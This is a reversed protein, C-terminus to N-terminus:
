MHLILKPNRVARNPVAIFSGACTETLGYGQVVPACMAVKLFEEVHSPLPAGGSVILRVRGGLRHKVKGFVIKDGIPSAQVGVLLLLKALSCKVMNERLINRAWIVSSTPNNPNPSQGNLTVKLEAIADKFVHTFCGVM